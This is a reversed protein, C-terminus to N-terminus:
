EFWDLKGTMLMNKFVPKMEDRLQSSFEFLKSKSNWQYAEMTTEAIKGNEDTNWTGYYITKKESSMKIAIGNRVSAGSQAILQSITGDKNKIKAIVPKGNEVQMLILEDSYAGGVGLNVLAEPISDGTIEDIRQISIPHSSEIKEDLVITKNLVKRVQPILNKWYEMQVSKNKRKNEVELIKKLIRKEDWSFLATDNPVTENPIYWFFKSFYQKTEKNKFDYNHLAFLYNRAVKLQESSIKDLVNNENDPNWLITNLPEYMHLPLYNNIEIDMNPKLNKCKNRLYGSQINVFLHTTNANGLGNTDSLIGKGILEWRNLSYNEFDKPLTFLGKINLILEFDEIISNAWGKGTTLRYDYHYSGDSIFSPSLNYSHKIINLGKKFTANFYYVFSEESDHIVNKFDTSIVKDLKYNLKKENLEVTFNSINPIAKEEDIGVGYCPPTVFGVLEKRTSDPNFFEFIIDIRMSDKIQTFTLREKKLIIRTEQTCILNGGHSSLVGDDALAIVSIFTAFLLTILKM